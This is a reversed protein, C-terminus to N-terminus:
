KSVWRLLRNRGPYQPFDKRLLCCGGTALVELVWHLRPFNRKRM